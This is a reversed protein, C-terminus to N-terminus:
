IMVAVKHIQIKIIKKNTAIDNACYSDKLSSRGLLDPFHFHFHFHSSASKGLLACVFDNHQSIYLSLTKAENIAKCM